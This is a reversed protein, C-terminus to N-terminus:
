HDSAILTDIYKMLKAIKKLQYRYVVRLRILTQLLSKENKEM